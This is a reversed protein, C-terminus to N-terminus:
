NKTTMSTTISIPVIMGELMLENPKITSVGNMEQNIIAEVIWGSEKDMKIESTMTGSIDYNMIFGASEMDAEKDSKIESRGQILIYGPIQDQFEYNTTVMASMGTELNTSINWKDGKQVSTEPYIATFLEISSRFAAEGFADKLQTQFKALEIDPVEAFKELIKEFLDEINKIAIIRGKRSMTIEIPKGILESLIASFIDHENKTESSFQMINDISMNIMDYKVELEYNENQIKKVLFSMNSINSIEMGIKQGDVEQSIISKTEIQQKYLKGSELNLTLDIKQAYCINSMILVIGLTFLIKM